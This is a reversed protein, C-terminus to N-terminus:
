KQLWQYNSSVFFLLFGCPVCVNDATTSQQTSTDLPLIDYRYREEREEVDLTRVIQSNPTLMIPGVSMCKRKLQKKIRRAAINSSPVELALSAPDQISESDWGSSKKLTEEKRAEAGKEESVEQNLNEKAKTETSTPKVVFFNIIRSVVVISVLCFILQFLQRITTTIFDISKNISLDIFSLTVNASTEQQMKESKKIHLHM